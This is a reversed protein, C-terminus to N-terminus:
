PITVGTLDECIQWLRSAAATDRAPGAIHAPGVDGGRMERFGQPGYYGGSQAQPATAAFLTPLAGEASSNFLAGVIRALAARLAKEPAKRGGAQFINSYAVGPHAAVALIRNAPAAAAQLRRDLEFSLLLNALKSQDYTESMSYRDRFQLDSFRLKGTKHAISAVTVIRPPAAASSAAARKLAPLLLGTLAFHGLVNTGFQLEFGDATELRKPIGGVGANNILLHLPANRALERGAFDRISSLSALDLRGFEVQASPADERIRNVADQGRREDRSAVVVTGGHRALELATPFGIGSNAGTVIVRRGTQDPIDAVTWRIPSM